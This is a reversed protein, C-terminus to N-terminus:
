ALIQRNKGITTMQLDIEPLISWKSGSFRLFENVISPFCCACVVSMIKFEEDEIVHVDNGLM